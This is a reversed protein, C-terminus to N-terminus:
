LNLAPKRTNAPVHGASPAAPATDAGRDAADANAPPHRQDDPRTPETWFVPKSAAADPQSYDDTFWEGQGRADAPDLPARPWACGTQDFENRPDM